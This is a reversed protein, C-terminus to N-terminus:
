YLKPSSSIFERTQMTRKVCSAAMMAADAMDPSKIGEKRMDDKSLIAKLGRSTYKFRITLFQDLSKHDNIIKLYGKNVMDKLEFYAESRRNYYMDENKAKEGGKFAVVNVRLERLRDTVGGGLGDDDVVILDVGMERKIDIIRGVTWMLDKGRHTECHTQEWTYTGRSELITFVTEDDGFRAIDVGLIKRTDKKSPLDLEMAEKLELWTFLYDDADTEEHDNLVYRKYHNPSDQEMHRLDEMFDKPLNDENDFTTAQQVDFDNSSPNNIWMRWIWNHGNANAILCMQRYPANDRRLRDRLFTFTEETEFEEAQEIGVISLNINKLVNLENGHRFMIASGNKYHYEKHSDVSVGFYREFDKITSDHLDTYEKRVILALSNPYEECFRWIKLLLMMTKGTGIGAVLSPFRKESFLFSDQFLKLKIELINPNQM